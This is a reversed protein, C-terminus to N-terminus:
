KFLDLRMSVTHINKRVLDKKSLGEQEKLQYEFGCKKYFEISQPYADVTIFRCGIGRENVSWVMGRIIGIIAKGLGKRQFKQILAMRALKIAPYYKYSKSSGFLKRKENSELVLTDTTLTYYGIIADNYGICTTQALNQEQHPLADNKFFDNLDSDGCDFDELKSDPTLRAPTFQVHLLSISDSM